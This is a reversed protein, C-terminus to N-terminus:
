KEMFFDIAKQFFISSKPPSYYLRFMRLFIYFLLVNKHILLYVPCNQDHAEAGAIFGGPFGGNFLDLLVDRISKLISPDVPM